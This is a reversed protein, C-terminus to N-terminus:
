DYGGVDPLTDQRGNTLNKKEGNKENKEEEGQNKRAMSQRPSSVDRPIFNCRCRTVQCVELATILLNQLWLTNSRPFAERAVTM